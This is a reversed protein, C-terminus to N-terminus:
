RSFLARQCSEACALGQNGQCGAGLALVRELHLQDVRMADCVEVGGVEDEIQANVQNRRVTKEAQSRDSDYLFGANLVELVGTCSEGKKKKEAALRRTACLPWVLHALARWLLSCRVEYSRGNKM